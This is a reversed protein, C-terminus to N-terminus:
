RHPESSFLATLCRAHEDAAAAIRLKLAKRRIPDRERDLEARLGDVVAGAGLSARELEDRIIQRSDM